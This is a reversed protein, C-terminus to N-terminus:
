LVDRGQFLRIHRIRPNRRGGAEGRRVGREDAEVGALRTQRGSGGFRRCSLNPVALINVPRPVSSCISRVADIDSIGPAYVVDAGAEAFAQLRKITDDLDARGWLFNEARATFVFDSKLAKAAEAAAAM